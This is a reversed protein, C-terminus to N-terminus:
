LLFLGPIFWDYSINPFVQGAMSLNHDPKKVHHELNDISPCAVKISCVEAM